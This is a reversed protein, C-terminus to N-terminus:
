TAFAKLCVNGNKVITTFDKWTKGDNSVYSQGPLSRARSSMKPKPYEYAVPNLENPAAIKVVVSFTDNKKLPVYGHLSITKYGMTIIKGSITKKLVGSTPKGKLPKQYIYITYSTNPATTYFSVAALNNNNKAKFVNSFWSSSKNGGWQSVVGFPDYQYIDKYNSPSYAGMFVFGYTQILVADYYSIYCYGKDGYSRGWSNKIIFAGNGPPKVKFLNKNYNDDWGVICVAHNSINERPDRSGPFYSSAYTPNYYPGNDITEGKCTVAVAGYKMVAYKISSNGPKISPSIIISEQFHLVPKLNLPSYGSYPNYPDMKSTVPGSYRALYAMSM